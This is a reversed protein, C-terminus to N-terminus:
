VCVHHVYLYLPLSFICYLTRVVIAQKWINAAYYKRKLFTQLYIKLKKVYGYFFRKVISRTCLAMVMLM